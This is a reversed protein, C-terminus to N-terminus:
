RLVPRGSGRRGCGACRWARASMAARFIFFHWASGGTVDALRTLLTLSSPVDRPDGIQAMFRRRLGDARFDGFRIDPASLNHQSPATRGLWLEGVSAGAFTMVPSRNWGTYGPAMWAIRAADANSEAIYMSRLAAFPKDAPLRGDFTVDMVMRQHDISGLRLVASGGRAFKLRFAQNEPEFAIESLTVYPRAGVEVPGVLFSSGYASAWTIRPCRGYAGTATRRISSSCRKRGPM